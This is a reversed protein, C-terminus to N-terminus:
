EKVWRLEPEDKPLRIDKDTSYVSYTCDECFRSSTVDRLYKMGLKGLVRRSATNTNEPDTFGHHSQCAKGGAGMEQPM